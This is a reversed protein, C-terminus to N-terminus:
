SVSRAPRNDCYPTGRQLGRPPEGEFYCGDVDLWFASCVPWDIIWLEWHCKSLRQYWRFRGLLYGLFWNRMWARSM